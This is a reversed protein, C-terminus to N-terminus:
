RQQDIEVDYTTDVDDIKDDHQIQQKPIEVLMSHDINPM